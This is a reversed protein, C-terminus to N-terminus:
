AVHCLLVKHFVSVCTNPSVYHFKKFNGTLWVNLHRHYIYSFWSLSKNWIYAENFPVVKEIIKRQTIIHIKRFYSMSISEKKNLKRPFGFLCLLSLGFQWKWISIFSRCYYSWNLLLFWEWSTSVKQVMKLLASTLIHYSTRLKNEKKQLQAAVGYYIIHM